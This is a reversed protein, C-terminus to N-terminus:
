PKDKFISLYSKADKLEPNRKLAETWEVFAADRKGTMYYTLGLQVQAPSYNPNIQRARKLEAVAEDYLGKDRLSTALRTLVDVLTPRLKLAKRFEEIASDTQGFELYINGLKFHENALKGAAFPDIGSGQDKISSDIRTFIQNAEDMKGMESYTIALNLAAETYKPNLEVAREFHAAAEEVNGEMSSIFGLKNHVDALMPRHRLVEKFLAAAKVYNGLEYSDAGETYLDSIEEPTLDPKNEPM